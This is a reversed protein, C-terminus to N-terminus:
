HFSPPSVLLEIGICVLIHQRDRTIKEETDKTGVCIIYAMTTLKDYHPTSVFHPQFVPRGIVNLWRNRGKLISCVVGDRYLSMEFCGYLYCLIFHLVGEGQTHTFICHSIM